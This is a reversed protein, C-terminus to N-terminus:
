VPDVRAILARVDAAERSLDLGMSGGLFDDGEEGGASSALVALVRAIIGALDIMQSIRM